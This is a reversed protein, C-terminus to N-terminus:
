AGECVPDCGENKILANLLRVYTHSEHGMSPESYTVIRIHPHCESM